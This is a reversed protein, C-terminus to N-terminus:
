GRLRHVSSWDGEGKDRQGNVLLKKQFMQCKEQKWLNQGYRVSLRLHIEFIM